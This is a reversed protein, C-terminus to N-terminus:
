PYLYTFSAFKIHNSVIQSVVSGIFRFCPYVLCWMFGFVLYLNREQSPGYCVCKLPQKKKIKASVKHYIFRRSECEIYKTCLFFSRVSNEYRTRNRPVEFRHNSRFSRFVCKISKFSSDWYHRTIITHKFLTEFNPLQLSKLLNDKALFESYYAVSRLMVKLVGDIRNHWRRPCKPLLTIGYRLISCRLTHMILIRASMKIKEPSRHCWLFICGTGRLGATGRQQHHHSTLIYLILVVHGGSRQSFREKLTPQESATWALWGTLRLLM